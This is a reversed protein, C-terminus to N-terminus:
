KIRLQQIGTLQTAPAKYTFLKGARKAIIKGGGSNDITFNNNEGIWLRVNEVDPFIGNSGAVLDLIWGNLWITTVGSGLDIRGKAPTLELTRHFTPQLFGTVPQANAPGVIGLLLALTAVRKMISM